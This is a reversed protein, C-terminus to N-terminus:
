QKRLRISNILKILRYAHIKLLLLVPRSKKQGIQCLRLTKICSDKGIKKIVEIANKNDARVVAHICGVLMYFYMEDFRTMADTSCKQESMLNRMEGYVRKHIAYIDRNYKSFLSDDNLRRYHYGIQASFYVKEANKLCDLAFLTDEGRWLSTDFRCKNDYIIGAKYVKSAVCAVCIQPYESYINEFLERVSWMKDESVGYKVSNEANEMVLSCIFVDADTKDFATIATEIFDPELTDDSDTFTIYDGTCADLGANRATSVGGNPKHIVKVRTDKEAFFNCIDPSKDTSGDDTLIVEVAGYTQGLISEVCEYLTDEANYVPVVISVTPKM